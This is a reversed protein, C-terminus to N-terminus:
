IMAEFHDLGRTNVCNNNAASRDPDYAKIICSIFHIKWIREKSNQTGWQSQHEYKLYVSEDFYSDTTELNIIVSLMFQMCGFSKETNDRLISVM